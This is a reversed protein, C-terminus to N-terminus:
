RHMVIFFVNDVLSTSCIVEALLILAECEKAIEGSKVYIVQALNISILSFLVVLAKFSRVDAM